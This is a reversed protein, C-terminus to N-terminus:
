GAEPVVYYPPAQFRLALCSSATFHIGYVNSNSRVLADYVEAGVVSRDSQATKSLAISVALLM